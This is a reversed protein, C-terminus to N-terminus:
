VGILWIIIKDKYKIEKVTKDLLGTFGKSGVLDVDKIKRRRRIGCKPGGARAHWNTTGKM